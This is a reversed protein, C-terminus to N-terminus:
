PATESIVDDDTADKLTKGDFDLFRFRAITPGGKPADTRAVLLRTFKKPNPQMSEPLECWGNSGDVTSTAVVEGQPTIVASRPANKDKEASYFAILILDRCAAISQPGYFTKAGINIEYHSVLNFDKDFVPKVAIRHLPVVILLVASEMERPIIYSYAVQM